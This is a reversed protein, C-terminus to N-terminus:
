VVVVSGPVKALAAAAEATTPVTLSAAPAPTAAAAQDPAAAKAETKSKVSQAPKRTEVVISPLQQPPSQANAACYFGAVGLLSLPLPALARGPLGRAPRRMLPSLLVSM